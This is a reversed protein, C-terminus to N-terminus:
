ARRKHAFLRCDVLNALDRAAQSFKQLYKDQMSVGAACLIIPNFQPRPEQIWKLNYVQFFFDPARDQAASVHWSPAWAEM